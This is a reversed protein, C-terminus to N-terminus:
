KETIEASLWNRWGSCLLKWKLEQCEAWKKRKRSQMQKAGEGRSAKKKVRPRYCCTVSGAHLWMGREFAQSIAPLDDWKNHDSWSHDKIGCNPPSHQRGMRKSFIMPHRKDVLSIWTEAAKCQPLMDVNINEVSEAGNQKSSQCAIQVM